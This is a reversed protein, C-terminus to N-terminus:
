QPLALVKGKKNSNKCEQHLKKIPLFPKAIFCISYRKMSVFVYRILM